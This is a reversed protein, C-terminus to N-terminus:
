VIKISLNPLRDIHCEIVDGRAVPGLNEPAGSHIIEGPVLEFTQGCGSIRVAMTASTIFMSRCDM